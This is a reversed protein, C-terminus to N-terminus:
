NSSEENKIRRLDDCHTCYFNAYGVELLPDRGEAVKGVVDHWEALVYDLVKKNM